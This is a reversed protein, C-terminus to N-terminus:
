RGFSRAPERLRELAAPLRRSVPVAEGGDLLAEFDGGGAPRLERVRSVNVIWSRHTRVFGATGLQRHADTLSSRTLPRRGDLLVFEVYNGAAQVAAIEDVPVRLLKSGDRIDFMRRGNEATRPPARRGTFFWFVAAIIAYGVLDKRYEYLFGSEGFPYHHGMAAYIAVRMANMLLVHLSSFLLTAVAHVAVFRAWGARGPPAIRLAAYVIGCSLLTAVYSTAEWTVPEWVALREGHEAADHIATFVNFTDVIAAFAAIVLVAWLLRPVRAPNTVAAEGNM